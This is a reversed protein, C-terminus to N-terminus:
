IYVNKYSDFIYSSNHEAKLKETTMKTNSISSEM